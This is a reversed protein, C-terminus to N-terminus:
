PICFPHAFSISKSSRQSPQRERPTSLRPWSNLHTRQKFTIKLAKLRLAPGDAVHVQKSLIGTVKSYREEM